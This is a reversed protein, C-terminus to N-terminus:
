RGVRRRASRSTSTRPNAPNMVLDTYDDSTSILATTNTWTNGGDTSMYIGTAATPPAAIWGTPASTYGTGRQHGPDLHSRRRWQARRSGDASAAAVPSRSWPHASYGGGANTVNISTVLGGAEVASAAAQAVSNVGGATVAVYVTNPNTPSVVIKAISQGTFVGGDNQLTWTEGGNQSVLLGLGYNQNAKQGWSRQGWPGGVGSNPDGTGAYVVSPNTPAVAVSGMFLTAQDDTLPTWTSGGNFTKWVGGGSTAM